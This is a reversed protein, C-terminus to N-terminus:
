RKCGAKRVGNTAWGGIPTGRTFFESPIRFNSKPAKLGVMLKILGVQTILLKASVRVIAEKAARVRKHGGEFTDQGWRAKFYPM